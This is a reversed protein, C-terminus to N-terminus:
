ELSQLMQDYFARESGKADRLKKIKNLASRTLHKHELPQGHRQRKWQWTMESHTGYRDGAGKGEEKTEKSEEKLEDLHKLDTWSKGKCVRM